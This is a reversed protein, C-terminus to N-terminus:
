SLAEHVVRHVVARFRGWARWDGGISRTGGTHLEDLFAAVQPLEGADIERWDELQETEDLAGLTGGLETLLFAFTHFRPAASSAGVYAIYALFREIRLELGTEEHAERVLADLIREGHMIGGTPLRYAGRPYFTKIALLLKGDPRRIVMCVEGFRDPKGIPDDFSDDITARVRRPAGYRRALEEVERAADPTLEV